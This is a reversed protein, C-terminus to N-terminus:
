AAAGEAPQPKAETGCEPCRDPTARHDYGCNRCRGQSPCRRARVYAVSACLALLPVLLWLPAFVAHYWGAVSRLGFGGVSWNFQGADPDYRDYGIWRDKPETALGVFFRGREGGVGVLWNPSVRAYFSIGSSGTTAWLTVSSVCLLLSVAAALNFLRRKM